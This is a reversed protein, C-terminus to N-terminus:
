RETRRKKRRETERRDTEMDRQEGTQREREREGKRERTRGELVLEALEEPTTYRNVSLGSVNLREKLAALAPPQKALEADSDNRIYFESFLSLYFHPSARERERKKEVKENREGRIKM